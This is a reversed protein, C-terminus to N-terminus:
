QRKSSSPWSRVSRVSGDSSVRFECSLSSDRCAAPVYGDFDSVSNRRVQRSSNLRVGRAPRDDDDDFDDSRAISATRLAASQNRTTATPTARPKAANAALGVTVTASRTRSGRSTPEVKYSEAATLSRLEVHRIIAPAKRPKRPAAVPAVAAIAAGMEPPMAAAVVRSATPDPDPEGRAIAVISTALDHPLEGYASAVVDVTLSPKDSATESPQVESTLPAPVEVAAVAVVTTDIPVLPATAPEATQIDPTASAITTAPAPFSGNMRRNADALALEFSPHAGIYGPVAAYRRGKRYAVDEPTAARIIQVNLTAVGQRVFGLREAAARSVDLTRNGWYPGANNIRLVASQRTSPNWALIVTGNPFKPSAANDPTGARFWEGSATLNSPNYRDKKPDDYHSAHLVMKKGVARRTEDLTMVRHCHGYFCYSKGPTKAAAISSTALSTSWLLGLSMVTVAAASAAGSLCANLGNAREFRSFM